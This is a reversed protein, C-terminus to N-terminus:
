EITFYVWGNIAGPRDGSTRWTHMIVSNVAVDLQLIGNKQSFQIGLITLLCPRKRGNGGADKAAGRVPDTGPASDTANQRNKRGCRTTFNWKQSLKVAEPATLLQPFTFLGTINLLNRRM